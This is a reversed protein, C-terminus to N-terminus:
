RRFTITLRRLADSYGGRTDKAFGQLATGAYTIAFNSAAAERFHAIANSLTIADPTQIESGRDDEISSGAFAGNGGDCPMSCQCAPIPAPGESHPRPPPPALLKVTAGTGGM